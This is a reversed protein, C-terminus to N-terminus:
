RFLQNGTVRSFKWINFKPSFKQSHSVGLKFGLCMEVHKVLKVKPNSNSKNNLDFHGNYVYAIAGILIDVVQICLYESDVETVKRVFETYKNGNKRVSEKHIKLNISNKLDFLSDQKKKNKQDLYIYYRNKFSIRQYILWFYMKYFHLEDSPSFIKNERSKQDVVIALFAIKNSKIQNTVIDILEIYMKLQDNKLKNWHFEKRFNYKSKLESIQQEFGSSNEAPLWLTGLVMYRHGNQSSEDGWVKVIQM